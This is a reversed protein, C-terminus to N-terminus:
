KKKRTPERKKAEDAYMLLYARDIRRLIALEDATPHRGTLSAWAAIESYTIACPMSHGAPRTEDLERWWGYLYLLADNVKPGDLDPHRKGSRKAFLLLTKLRPVGQADPLRMREWHSAFAVM